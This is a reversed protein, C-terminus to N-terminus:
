EAELSEGREDKSEEYLEEIGCRWARALKIATELRMHRIDGNWVNYITARTLRAEYSLAQPTAYGAAASLQGVKSSIM